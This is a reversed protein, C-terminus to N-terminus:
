CNTDSLMVCMCHYYLKKKENAGVVGMVNTIKIKIKKLKRSNYGQNFGGGSPNLM